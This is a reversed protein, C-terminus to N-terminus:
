FTVGIRFEPSSYFSSLNQNLNWLIMMYVSGNEGVPQRIGGGVYFNQELFRGTTSIWPIEFFRNDMSLVEYEAHAMIGVNSHIFDLVNNLNKIVLFSTFVSGGYINTGSSLYKYYEYKVGAGAALRPTLWYGVLPALQIDTYTGLQLFINGGFFIRRASPYTKTEQVEQAQSWATALLCIIGLSVATKIIKHM